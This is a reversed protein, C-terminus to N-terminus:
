HKKKKKKHKKSKPPGSSTVINVASGAALTGSGPSTSIVLGKHVTKSAKSTIKGVTCNLATIVQKATALPLGTLSVLKCQASPASPANVTLTASAANNAPNADGIPSSTSVTATDPYSGANPASALILIPVSAGGELNPITCNVLQGATTCSGTGAIAALVTLGGPLGDTFTVPGSSVGSNSVTFDYAAIGGATITAPSASGTVGIDLSQTLEAAISLLISQATPITPTYLTGVAPASAPVTATVTDSAPLSGGSFFCAVTTVSSYVGLMEGESAIIPTTLDFTAVGSAPLPNPVTESDLAMVKYGSGSPRVLLFTLPSGPTAGEVNASWSSIRGGGSPVLYQSTGDTGTQIVVSGSGPCGVPNSGSPKTTTGLTLASASSVCLALVAGAVSGLLGFRICVTFGGHRFRIAAM